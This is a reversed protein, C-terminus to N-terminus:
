LCSFSICSILLDGYTSAAAAMMRDANSIAPVPQAFFGVGVVGAAAFISSGGAGDVGAGEGKGVM